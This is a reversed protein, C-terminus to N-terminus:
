WNFYVDYLPSQPQEHENNPFLEPLPPLYFEPFQNDEHSLPQYNIHQPLPQPLITSLQPQLQPQLQVQLQPQLQPQCLEDSLKYMNWYKDHSSLPQPQYYEYLLKPQYSVHPQTLPPRPLLLPLKKKSPQPSPQTSPSKPNRLKFRRNGEIALIKFFKKIEDSEEKWMKNLLNKSISGRGKKNPQGLVNRLYLNYSNNNYRDRLLDDIKMNLKCPPNNKVKLFEKHNLTNKTEKM